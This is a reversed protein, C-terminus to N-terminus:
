EMLEAFAFLFKKTLRGDKEALKGVLWIKEADTLPYSSALILALAVIRCLFFM